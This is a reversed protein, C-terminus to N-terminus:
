AESNNAVKISLWRGYSEEGLVDPTSASGKGHEVGMPVFYVTYGGIRSQTVGFNDELGAYRSGDPVVIIEDVGESAHNHRFVRGAGKDACIGQLWVGEGRTVVESDILLNDSTVLGLHNNTVRDHPITAGFLANLQELSPVVGSRNENTLAVLAKAIDNVTPGGTLGECM